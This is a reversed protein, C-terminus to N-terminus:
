NRFATLYKAATTTSTEISVTNFVREIHLLEATETSGEMVLHFAVVFHKNYFHATNEFIHDDTSGEKMKEDGNGVYNDLAAAKIEDLVNLAEMFPM